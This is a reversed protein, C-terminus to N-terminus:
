YVPFLPSPVPHSEGFILCSTELKQTCTRLGATGRLLKYVYLTYQNRGRMGLMGTVAETVSVGPAARTRISTKSVTGPEARFGPLNRLSSLMKKRNLLSLIPEQIPAPCWSSRSEFSPIKGNGAGGEGSLLSPKSISNVVSWAEHPLRWLVGFSLSSGSQCVGVCQPPSM